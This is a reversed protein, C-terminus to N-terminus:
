YEQQDKMLILYDSFQKVRQDAIDSTPIMLYRCKSDNYKGYVSNMLKDDQEYTYPGRFPVTQKGAALQLDFCNKCVMAIDVTKSKFSDTKAVLSYLSQEDGRNAHNMGAFAVFQRIGYQQIQKALNQYMTANREKFKDFTNENFLISSVIKFNPGYYQEYLLRNSDVAKKLHEYISSFSDNNVKSIALTDIYSLTPAIEKPPLRGLPKLFKLTKVFDMREFDVGHIAIKHSLTKNYKYLQKWMDRNVQKGAYVLEPRTFLSTDGSALYMNYLWAASYGIEMFVDTVGLQKNLYKIMALKVEPTGYVGHFEGVFFARYKSFDTKTELQIENNVDPMFCGAYQADCSYAGAVLTLILIFRQLM